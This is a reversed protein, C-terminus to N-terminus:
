SNLIEKYIEIRKKNLVQIEYNDMVYEHLRNGMRTIEGPNDVFYKMKDYWGMIDDENVLFGFENKEIDDITYPGYNSAIIPTRHAGCEILKLQSKYLNFLVGSKLPALSVTNNFLGPNEGFITIPKTWIRNYFSDKFDENWGFDTDDYKNLFERYDNDLWKGKNTFIDEFFSWENKRPDSKLVGHQTRMRLDFGAMFIQCKNMFDKSFGEFSRKLLSLDPRHSIGGSWIFKVRDNIWRKKSIFQQEVSNFGNEIVYVNPNYEKLKNKYIPTTTIVADVMRLNSETVEQAKSEKWQKYNLHTNTLIFYDDIDYILKINHKKVINMFMDFYERKSFPLTKNYFIINFQSTYGENVLNLTGDTLFRIEIDIEPDDITLHPDLQRFKGVGDFDSCIVLIKIM